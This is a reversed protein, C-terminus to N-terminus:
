IGPNSTSPDRRFTFMNPSVPYQGDGKPPPRSGPHESKLAIASRLLILGSSKGHYRIPLSRMSLNRMSEALEKDLEITGDEEEDYDSDPGRDM